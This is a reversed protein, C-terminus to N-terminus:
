EGVAKKLEVGYTQAVFSAEIAKLLLRFMKGEDERGGWAPSTRMRGIKFAWGANLIDQLTAPVTEPWDGYENPPMDMGLKEVLQELCPAKKALDYPEQCEAPLLALVQNRVNPWETNILRYAERTIVHANLAQVDSTTAVLHGVERLWEVYALLSQGPYAHDGADTHVTRPKLQDCCAEYLKRIRFRWPPYASTNIPSEDLSHVAAYECCEALVAPGFLHVGIADCLLETLGQRLIEMARQTQQSVIQKIITDKFLPHIDQPPNKNVEGEVTTRITAEEKQWLAPFKTLVWRNALIHGLEHGWNVHSLCNMRELRPFSISFVTETPKTPLTSEWPAMPVWPCSAILSRFFAVFDGTIAYNYSWQPRIIFNSNTGTTAKLFSEVYEVMSWPTQTMKSRDAYRLDQTM